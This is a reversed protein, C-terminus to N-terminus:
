RDKKPAGTAPAPLTVEAGPAPSETAAPTAAPAETTIPEAAPSAGGTSDETDLTPDVMDALALLVDRLDADVDARKRLKTVSRALRARPSRPDNEEVTPEPAPAPEPAEMRTATVRNRKRDVTPDLAVVAEPDYPVEEYEVPLWGHDRLEATNLAELGSVNAWSGPMPAPGYDIEGDDTVHAWHQPEVDEEASSPRTDAM